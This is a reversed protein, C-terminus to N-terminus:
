GRLIGSLCFRLRIKITNTKLNLKALSPLEEVAKAIQIAQRTSGSSIGLDKATKDTTWNDLDITSKSKRDGGHKLIRGELKRKMEDYDKIASAVEIDTLPKM